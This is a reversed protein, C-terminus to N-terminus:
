YLRLVEKRDLCGPVYMIISSSYFRSRHIIVQVDSYSTGIDEHFREELLM